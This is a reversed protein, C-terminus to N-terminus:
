ADTRPRTEALSAILQDVRIPKTVYDDMGAALYEERQGLMANATLAIIPIHAVPRDLQRIVKTATPGDMEPMQIDMLILDYSINKVAEVAEMGDGVVDVFHGSKGLLMKIFLQNV